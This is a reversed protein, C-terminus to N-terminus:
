VQGPARMAAVGADRGVQVLDGAGDGDLAVLDEFTERCRLLRVGSDEVAVIAPRPYSFSSSFAFYAGADMVALGDGVALEPLRWAPYMQDSVM